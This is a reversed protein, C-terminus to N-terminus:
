RRLGFLFRQSKTHLEINRSKTQLTKAYRRNSTGSQQHPIKESGFFWVM